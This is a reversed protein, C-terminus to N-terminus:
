SVSAITNTSAASSIATPRSPAVSARPKAAPASKAAANRHLSGYTIPGASSASRSPHQCTWVRRRGRQRSPEDTASAARGSDAAHINRRRSPMESPLVCSVADAPSCARL